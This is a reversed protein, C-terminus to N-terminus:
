AWRWVTAYRRSRTRSSVPRSGRPGLVALAEAEAELSVPDDRRPQRASTAPATDSRAIVACRRRSGKPLWGRPASATSSWTATAGPPPRADLHRLASTSPCGDVRAVSREAARVAVSRGRPSARPCARSSCASGPSVRWGRASWCRTWCERARRRGSPPTTSSSCRGGSCSRSATPRAHVAAPTSPDFDEGPGLGAHALNQVEVQVRGARPPAISSSATSRSAAGADVAADVTVRAHRRCRRAVLRRPDAPGPRTSASARRGPPCRARRCASRRSAAGAAAPRRGPGLPQRRPHAACAAFGVPGFIGPVVGAGLAAWGRRGAAARSATVDGFAFRRPMAPILGAAGRAYGRRVPGQGERAPRSRRAALSPQLHTARPPSGDLLAVPVRSAGPRRARRDRRPGDSRRRLRPLACTIAHVAEGM